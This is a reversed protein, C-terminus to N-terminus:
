VVFIGNKNKLYNELKEMVQDNPIQPLKCYFEFTVASEKLRVLAIYNGTFGTISRIAAVFQDKPPMVGKRRYEFSFVGDKSYHAAVYGKGIPSSSDFKWLKYGKVGNYTGSWTM